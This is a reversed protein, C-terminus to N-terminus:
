LSNAMLTGNTTGKELISVGILPEHSKDMVIGSVKRQAMSVLAVCLCFVILFCRKM